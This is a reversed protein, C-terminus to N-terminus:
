RITVTLSYTANGRTGGVVIAYDGSTPLEGSWRTADEGEGAGALTSDSNPEYIQFVANKELSTIKVTMTQGASAGVLYRDSDARVVAGRVTASSKGKAFRIRKNVGFALVASVAFLLVCSLAAMRRMNLKM